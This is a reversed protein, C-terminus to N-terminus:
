MNAFTLRKDVYKKLDMHYTDQNTSSCFDDLLGLSYLLQENTMKQLIAKASSLKSYPYMKDDNVISEFRSMLQEDNMSSARIAESEYYSGSGILHDACNDVGIREIAKNAVSYNKDNIMKHLYKAPLIGAVRRRVRVDKSNIMRKSLTIRDSGRISDIYAMAVAGECKKLLIKDLSPCFDRIFRVTSSISSYHDRRGVKRSNTWTPYYNWYNDSFIKGLKYSSMDMLAKVIAEENYSTYWRMGTSTANAEVIDLFEKVYKSEKPM